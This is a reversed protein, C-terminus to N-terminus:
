TTSKACRRTASPMDQWGNHTRAGTFLTELATPTIAESM